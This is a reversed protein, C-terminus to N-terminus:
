VYCCWCLRCCPEEESSCGRSSLDVKEKNIGPDLSLTLRGANPFVDKVYATLHIGKKVELECDNARKTGELAYPRRVESQHLFGIM